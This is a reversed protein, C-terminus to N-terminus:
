DVVLAPVKLSEMHRWYIDQLCVHWWTCMAIGLSKQIETSLLSSSPFSGLSVLRKSVFGHISDSNWRQIMIDQASDTGVASFFDEPQCYVYVWVTYLMSALEPPSESPYKAVMGRVVFDGVIFTRDCLVSVSDAVRPIFDLDDVEDPVAFTVQLSIGGLPSKYAFDSKVEMRHVYFFTALFM